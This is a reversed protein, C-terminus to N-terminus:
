FYFVGSVGLVRHQNNKNANNENSGGPATNTLGIGYQAHVGFRGFDVGGIINAGFDFRKFQGSGVTGNRDDGDLPNDNGWKISESSTTTTGDTKITTKLKGAIGLAAYPGAGIYAKVKENFPLMVAFNVPLELYLPNVKYTSKVGDVLSTSSETGKSQLDLGTRIEFTSGLPIVGVVGVNFSNLRKSDDLNGERGNTINSNNWGAKIGFKPRAFDQAQVAGAGLLLALAGIIFKNKM